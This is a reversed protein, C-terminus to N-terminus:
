RRRIKVEVRSNRIDKTDEIIPYSDGYATVVIKKDINLSKLYKSILLAFNESDKKAIISNDKSASYGEVEIYIDDDVKSILSKLKQLTEKSKPIIQNSSDIYLYKEEKLVRELESIYDVSPVTNNQEVEKIEIKEVEVVAISKNNEKATKDIKIEAVTDNIDNEVPLKVKKEVKIIENEPLSIKKESLSPYLEKYFVNAHLTYATSIIAFTGAIGLIKIKTSQLM